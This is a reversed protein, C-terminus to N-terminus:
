AGMKYNKASIGTYQKSFAFNVSQLTAPPPLGKAGECPMPQNLSLFSGGSRYRTAPTYSVRPMLRFGLSAALMTRQMDLVPRQLHSEWGGDGRRLGPGLTAYPM